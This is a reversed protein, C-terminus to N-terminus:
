KLCFVAHSIRMLSQLELTHEESRADVTDPDGRMRDALAEREQAHAKHDAHQAPAPAEPGRSPDADGGRQAAVQQDLVARAREAQGLDGVPLVVVVVARRRGLDSSCVDSSWYSIRM